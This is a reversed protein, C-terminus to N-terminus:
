NSVLAAILVASVISVAGWIFVSGNRALWPLQPVFIEDGSRIPTAQLVTAAGLEEQLVQGERILKIKKGDGDQAIGGAVAIVQAVTVTPDVPYLGPTRVWGQVAIRRLLTVQISPNRLYRAYAAKIEAALSDASKGAVPVDGLRPLTVIGSRSVPFDGSMDEERWIWVRVVDGPRAGEQVTDPRVELATSAHQASAADAACTLLLSVL